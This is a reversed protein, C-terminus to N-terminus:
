YKLIELIPEIDTVGRCSFRGKSLFLEKLGAKKLIM